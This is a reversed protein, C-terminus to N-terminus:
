CRLKAGPEGNLHTAFPRGNLLSYRTIEKEVLVGAPGLVPVGIRLHGVPVLMGQVDAGAHLGVNSGAAILRSQAGGDNVATIM